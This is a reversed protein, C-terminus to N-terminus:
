EVATVIFQLYGHNNFYMPWLDNAFLYLEGSAPAKFQSQERRSLDLRRFPYGSIGGVVGFLPTRWYRSFPRSIAHLLKQAGSLKHRLWGGQDSAVSADCWNSAKILEISYARGPALKIGTYNKRLRSFLFVPTSSEGAALTVPTAVSQRPRGHELLLQRQQERASAHPPCNSAGLVPQGEKGILAPPLLLVGSISLRILLRAIM